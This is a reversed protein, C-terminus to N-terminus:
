NGESRARSLCSSAIAPKASRCWASRSRQRVVM